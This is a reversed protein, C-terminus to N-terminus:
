PEGSEWLRTTLMSCGRGRRRAPPIRPSFEEFKNGRGSPPAYVNERRASMAPVGRLAPASPERSTDCRVALLGGHSVGPRPVRAASGEGEVHGPLRGPNDARPDVEDSELRAAPLERPTQRQNASD